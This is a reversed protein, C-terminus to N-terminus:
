WASDSCCREASRRTLCLRRRWSQYSRRERRRQMLVWIWSRQTADFGGQAAAAEAQAGFVAGRSPLGAARVSSRTDMHTQHGFSGQWIARARVSRRSHSSHVWEASNPRKFSVIGCAEGGAKSLDDTMRSVRTVTWTTM